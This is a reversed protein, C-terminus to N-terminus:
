RVPTFPRGLDAPAEMRTRTWPASLVALAAITALYPLMAFFQPPAQLGWGQSYLELVSVAGFLLTGFLLRLPRWAAFVVLALAIWGRGATLGESWLPTYALSVYAGALGSMAGGFLLAATRWALVSHGLADAAEHNEGVARLVLGARSHFLFIQLAAVAALAGWFFANQDLVALAPFAEMGPFGLRPLPEIARGVYGAGLLASLGTGFITLALGTAVQSTRLGLALLAFLAALGAGGAAGAAAGAWPSGTEVRFIFALVAGTLMMGELGLNLVGAREAALEGLAALLLPLSAAIITASLAILSIEWM